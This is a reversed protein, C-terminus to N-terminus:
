ISVQRLLLPRYVRQLSIDFVDEFADAEQRARLAQVRERRVENAHKDSRIGLFAAHRLHADETWEVFRIQLNQSETTQSVALSVGSSWLM